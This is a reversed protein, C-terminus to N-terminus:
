RNSQGIIYLNCPHASATSSSPSFPQCAVHRHLPSSTTLDFRGILLRCTGRFQVEDKPQQKEKWKWPMMTYDDRPGKLAHETQIGLPMTSAEQLM